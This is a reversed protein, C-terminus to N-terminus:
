GYVMICFVNKKYFINEPYIVTYYEMNYEISLMITQYTPVGFYKSNLKWYEDSEQYTREIKNMM